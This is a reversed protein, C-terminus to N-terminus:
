PRGDNDIPPGSIKRQYTKTPDILFEALIVGTTTDVTTVDPGLFV